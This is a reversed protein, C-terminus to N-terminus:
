PNVILWFINESYCAELRLKPELVSANKFCSLHRMSTYLPSDKNPLRRSAGWPSGLPASNVGLPPPHKRGLDGVNEEGLPRQLEPARGIPM